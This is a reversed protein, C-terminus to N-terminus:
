TSSRILRTRILRERGTSNEVKDNQVMYRYKRCSTVNVNEDNHANLKTGKVYDPVIELVTAKVMLLILNVSVHPQVVLANQVQM